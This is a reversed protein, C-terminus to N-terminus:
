LSIVLKGMHVQRGSDRGYVYTHTYAYVYVYLSDLSYRYITKEKSYISSLGRNIVLSLQEVQADEGTEQELVDNQCNQEKKGIDDIEDRNIKGLLTYVLSLFFFFFNRGGQIRSREGFIVGQERSEKVSFFFIRPFATRYTSDETETRKIEQVGELLTKQWKELLIRLFTASINMNSCRITM